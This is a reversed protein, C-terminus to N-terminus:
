SCYTNVPLDVLKEVSTLQVRCLPCFALNKSCKSCTICHGCNYKVNVISEMCSICMKPKVTCTSVSKDLSDSGFKITFSESSDFVLPQRSGSISHVLEQKNTRSCTKIGYLSGVDIVLTKKEFFMIIASIRSFESNEPDLLIDSQSKRGIIVIPGKMLYLKKQYQISIDITYPRGLEPVSSSILKAVITFYLKWNPDEIHDLYDNRIDVLEDNTFLTKSSVRSSIIRSTRHESM